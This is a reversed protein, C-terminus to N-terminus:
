NEWPLAQGTEQVLLKYLVQKLKNKRTKRDEGTEDMFYFDEQEKGAFKLCNEM